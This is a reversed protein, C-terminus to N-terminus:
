SFFMVSIIKLQSVNSQPINCMSIMIVLVLFSVSDTNSQLGYNGALSLDRERGLLLVGM